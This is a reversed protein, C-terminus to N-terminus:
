AFIQPLPLILILTGPNVGDLIFTVSLRQLLHPTM